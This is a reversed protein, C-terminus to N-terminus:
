LPIDDFGDGITDRGTVLKPESGSGGAVYPDKLKGIHPTIARRLSNIWGMFAVRSAESATMPAGNETLVFQHWMSPQLRFAIEPFGSQRMGLWYIGDNDIGWYLRNKEVLNEATPMKKSDSEGNRMNKVFQKTGPAPNSRIFAEQLTLLQEFTTPDFGASCGERKEGNQAWVTIRPAGDRISAVMSARWGPKNPDPTFLVFQKLDLIPVFEQDNRNNRAATAM